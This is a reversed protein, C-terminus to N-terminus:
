EGDAEEFCLHRIECGQMRAMRDIVAVIMEAHERASLAPFAREISLKITGYSVIAALHEYDHPSLQPM